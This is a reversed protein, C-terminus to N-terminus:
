WHARVAMQIQNQAQKPSLMNRIRAERDSEVHLYEVLATFNSGLDRKADLTIAWGDENDERDVGSGHNRTSFLDLRATLSGNSLRQTAMGYASRFRMDIWHRGAIEFGMRTRGTLGQARLERGGGLNAVIGLTEFKTRWGWELDPNFAEPNGNNDYHVVEVRLPVPATWALKAYYGPRKALGGDLDLLPHTYRPQVYEIFDALPPLPQRHFALAKRDHLAWGRFTLLAGATDNYDFGALTVALEHNGISTKGTVEVGVVKVEEGIWSGIASPTITDSVVWEPGSHELSIPPWMLGARASIRVPGGSLPRFDLYAESLGGELRGDGQQAQAVVTGSLAWGLHPQWVLGAEGFEPNFTLDSPRNPDDGGYRLKGFGGNTWSTEGDAAVVRVDGFLKFVDPSDLDIASDQAFSGESQCASLCALAFFGTRLATRSHLQGM